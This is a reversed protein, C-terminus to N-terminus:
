PKMGRACLSEHRREAPDRAADWPRLRCDVFGADQLVRVLNQEDFMHRHDGNMYAMYNAIDIPLDSYVAPQFGLHSRDFSDPDTYARLYLGANPVCASIEGGPRLVRRCERLLAMLDRYAFHELTHSSYILTASGDPFPLGRQLDWYVDAGAVLDLTVWGDRGAVPGSGIELKLEGGRALLRCARLRSLPSRAAWRVDRALQLVWRPLVRQYFTRFRENM